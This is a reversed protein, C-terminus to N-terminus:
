QIINEEFPSPRRLSHPEAIVEQDETMGLANLTIEGEIYPMHITIEKRGELAINTEVYSCGDDGLAHKIAERSEAGEYILEVEARQQVQSSCISILSITTPKQSQFDVIWYEDSVSIHEMILANGEEGNGQGTCATLLISLLSIIIMRRM